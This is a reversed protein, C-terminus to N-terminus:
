DAACYAHNVFRVLGYIEACLPVFSMIASHEPM